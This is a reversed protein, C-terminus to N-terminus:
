IHRSVLLIYWKQSTYLKIEVQGTKNSVFGQSPRVKLVVHPMFVKTLFCVNVTQPCLTAVNYLVIFYHPCMFYLYFFHCCLFPVKYQSMYCLLYTSRNISLQFKCQVNEIHGTMCVTSTWSGYYTDAQAEHISQSLCHTPHGKSSDPSTNESCGSIVALTFLSFSCVFDTNNSVSILHTTVQTVNNISCLSLVLVTSFSLTWFM